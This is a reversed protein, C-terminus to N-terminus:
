NEVIQDQNIPLLNGFFSINQRNTSNVNLTASGSASVSLTFEVTEGKNKTKFVIKSGGKKTETISYDEIPAEFVLPSDNGNYGGSYARGMYPLYSDINGDRLIVSYNMITRSAGKSPLMQTASFYWAEEALIQKTQEELQAKREAKREKRSKKEEATLSITMLMMLAVLLYNKMNKIKLNTIKEVAFISHKVFNKYGYGVFYYDM